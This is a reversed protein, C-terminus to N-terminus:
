MDKSVIIIFLPNKYGLQMMGKLTIKRTPIWHSVDKSKLCISGLSVSTIHSFTVPGKESGISPIIRVLVYHSQGQTCKALGCDHYFKAFNAILILKVIFMM